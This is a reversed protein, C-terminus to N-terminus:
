QPAWFVNKAHLESRPNFSGQARERHGPGKQTSLACFIMPLNFCVGQHSPAPRLNLTARRLDLATLYIIEGFFPGGQFPGSLFFFPGLFYKRGWMCIRILHKSKTESHGPSTVHAIQTLKQYKARSVEIALRPCPVGLSNCVVQIFVLLKLRHYDVLRM